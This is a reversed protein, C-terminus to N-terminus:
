KRILYIPVIIFWFQVTILYFLPVNPSNNVWSKLDNNKDIYALLLCGVFLNILSIFLITTM